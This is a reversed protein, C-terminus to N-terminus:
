GEDDFLRHWLEVDDQSLSTESKSEDESRARKEQHKALTPSVKRRKPKPPAPPTAGRSGTENAGTRRENPRPSDTPSTPPEAAARAEFVSLWTDVETESLSGDKRVVPEAAEAPKRRSPRKEPLKPPPIHSDPDDHFIELWAAVEADDVETPKGGAKPPPPAPSVPIGLREGITPSHRNTAPKPAQPRPQQSQRKDTNLAPRTTVDPPSPAPPQEDEEPEPFIELWAAVEVSSVSEPKEKEPTSPRELLDVFEQASLTRAGTDLAQDRVEHDSSVVTWNGPDPLARMRERIIRDANTHYRAAFVVKVDVTSLTRSPGGPLGGDFVVIAKRNVRGAWARLRLVLKAEDHPDELDIDDLAAIVNHGDILFPM